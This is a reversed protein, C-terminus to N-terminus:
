SGRGCTKAVATAIIGVAVVGYLAPSIASTLGLVTKVPTCFAEADEPFAIVWALAAGLLIAVRRSKNSV